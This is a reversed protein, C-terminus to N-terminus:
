NAIVSINRNSFTCTNSGAKYVATFTHSGANLGSVQYTASFQGRANAAASTFIISNADSASVSSAGSIQFGVLCEGGATDNSLRATITVLASGGAVSVTTAPGPTALSTYTLSATSQSASVVANTPAFTAGARAALDWYSPNIDPQRGTGAQNSM